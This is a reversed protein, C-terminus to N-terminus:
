LAGINAKACGDRKLSALCKKILAAAESLRCWDGTTGRSPCLSSPASGRLGAGVRDERGVAKEQRM